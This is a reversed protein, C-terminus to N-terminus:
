VIATSAGVDAGATAAAIRAASPLVRLLQVANPLWHVHPMKAVLPQVSVLQLPEPLRLASGVDAPMLVPAPQLIMAQVAADLLLVAVAEREVPIPIRAPDCDVTFSQVVLLLWPSPMWVALKQVM